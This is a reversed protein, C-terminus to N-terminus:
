YKPVSWEDARNEWIENSNLLTRIHNEIEDIVISDDDTEIDVTMGPNYGSVYHESIVTVSIEADPYERKLIDTFEKQCLAALKDASAREDYESEEFLNGSLVKESITIKM